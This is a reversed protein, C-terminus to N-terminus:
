EPQYVRVYDVEYRIPFPSRSPDGGAGGIALNLLLYHPQLFPNFGDPNVTQSVLTSNLLKGDLFLSISDKNWDMMWI